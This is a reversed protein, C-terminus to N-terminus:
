PLRGNLIDLLQAGDILRGAAVANEALRRLALLTDLATVVEADATMALHFDVVDGLQSM